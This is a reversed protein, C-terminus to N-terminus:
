ITKFYDFPEGCANCRFLAKCATSGFESVRRSDASGCRPCLVGADPTLGDADAACQEPPAIGYERLRACGEPSIWASSWAPALRTRIELPGVGAEGLVQEIDSRITEMAPCGSYTPTITVVVRGQEEAVDHLVGLDWISLVPIEPDRVRDLLDWLAPLASQERRRCRDIYARNM